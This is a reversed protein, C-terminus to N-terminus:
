NGRKEEEADQADSLDNLNLCMAHPVNRGGRRYSRNNEPVDHCVLDEDGIREKGQATAPGHSLSQNRCNAAVKKETMEPKKVLSM